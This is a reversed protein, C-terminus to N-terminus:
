QGPTARSLQAPALERLLKRRMAAAIDTFDAATEVFAGPGKIVHARYYGAMTKVNSLNKTTNARGQPGIVLGNVTIGGLEARGLDRPHVGVNAPGDGSIDLTHQWCDAQGALARAAFLMAPGIATAPDNRAATRGGHLTEAIGALQDARTIETWRVLWAQHRAGSWEFIALRVPAQPVALFAAAVEPANLAAAVGDLQLRYEAADVSGSVDLGLVLAQRCAAGAATAAGTALLAVALALAKM